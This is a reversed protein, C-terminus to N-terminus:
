FYSIGQFIYNQATAYLVKNPAYCLYLFLTYETAGAVPRVDRCTPKQTEMEPDSAVVHVGRNPWNFRSNEAKQGVLWVGSNATKSLRPRTASSVPLAGTRAAQCFRIPANNLKARHRLFDSQVNHESRTPPSGSVLHVDRLLSQLGVLFPHLPPM